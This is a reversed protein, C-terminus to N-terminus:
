CSPMETIKPGAGPGYQSSKRRADTAVIRWPVPYSTNLVPPLNSSDLPQSTFLYAAGVVPTMKMALESKYGYPIYYLM